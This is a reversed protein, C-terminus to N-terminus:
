AMWMAVAVALMVMGITLAIFAVTKERPGFMRM